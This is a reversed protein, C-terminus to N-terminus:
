PAATEPTRDDFPVVGPPIEAPEVHEARYIWFGLLRFAGTTRLDWVIEGAPTLEFIRSPKPTPFNAATGSTVLINGNPLRDADGVSGDFFDPEERWAFTEEVTGAAEDWDFIAVRSFERGRGGNDFYLISGDEQVEPSHQHHMFGEGGLGGEGITARVQGSPYDVALMRDLNRVSVWIVSRAPDWVAGNSHTWDAGLNSFGPLLLDFPDFESTSVHDFIDWSWLIENTTRDVLEMGDGEWSTGLVDRAIATLYLVHGDPGTGLEHHPLSGEPSRWVETGDWTVEIGRPLFLDPREIVLLNGNDLVRCDTLFGRPRQLFWVIEGAPNVLVLAAVRNDPNPPLPDQLNFLTYGGQSRVPDHNVIEFTPFDDPVIVIAFRSDRQGLTAGDEGLIEVRAHIEDGDELPNAVTWSTETTEVSELLATREPDAFLLVRYGAARESPTWRLTPREVNAVGDPSPSVLRGDSPPTGSGSDGSCAALLVLGALLGTGARTM